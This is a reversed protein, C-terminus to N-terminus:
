SGPPGRIGLAGAPPRSALGDSGPAVGATGGGAASLPASRIAEAVREAALSLGLLILASGCAVLFQIALGLVFLHHSFLGVVPAGYALREVSEMATFAVLQLAALRFLLWTYTELGPRPARAGSALHRLFLTGVGALGLAVALKVVLVWSGHGTAVLIQDRAPAAPISIRYALWHGLVVGAAALGFVPLGRFTRRERM